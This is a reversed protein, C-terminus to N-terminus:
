CVEETEIGDDSVESIKDVLFKLIMVTYISLWHIIIATIYFEIGIVIMFASIIYERYVLSIVAMVTFVAGAILLLWIWKYVRM